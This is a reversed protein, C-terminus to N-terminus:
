EAIRTEGGTLPVVILLPEEDHVRLYIYILSVEQTNTLGEMIGKPALSM